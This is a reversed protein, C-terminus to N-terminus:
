LHHDGAGAPRGPGLAASRRTSSSRSTILPSGSRPSGYATRPRGRGSSSAASGDRATRGAGYAAGVARRIPAARRRRFGDRRGGRRRSPPIPRLSSPLPMQTQRSCSCTRHCGISATIRRGHARGTRLTTEGILVRTLSPRWSATPPEAGVTLLCRGRGPSARARGPPRERRRRHRARSRHVHRDGRRGPVFHESVVRDRVSHTSFNLATVQTAGTDLRHVMVLLAPDSVSPIELQTCTAIGSRRRVALIDSLRRVFSSPEELQEPLSGYLSRGPPM